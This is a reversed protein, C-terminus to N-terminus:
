DAVEAVQDEVTFHIDPFATRYVTLNDFYINLNTILGDADYRTLTGGRVEAPRGTALIDFYLGTHTGKWVVENLVWGDGMDITRVAEMSLDPFGM